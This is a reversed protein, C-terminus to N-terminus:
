RRGGESPAAGPQRTPIGRSMPVAVLAILALVSLAARLGELRARANEDVIAEATTRPVDAAELARRLDSDPIFPIGSAL